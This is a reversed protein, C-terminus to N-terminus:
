GFDRCRRKLFDASIRPNDRSFLKHTLSKIQGINTQSPWFRSTGTLDIGPTQLYLISRRTSFAFNAASKPIGAIQINGYVLGLSLVFSQASAQFGSFREFLAVRAIFFSTGFIATIVSTASSGYLMSPCSPKTSFPRMNFSLVTSAKTFCASDCAFAPASM